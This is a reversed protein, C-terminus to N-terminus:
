FRIIQRLVMLSIRGCLLNQKFIMIMRLGQIKNFVFYVKRKTTVMPM